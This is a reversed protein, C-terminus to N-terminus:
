SPLSPLVKSDSAVAAQGNGKEKFADGASSSYSACSSPPFFPVPCFVSLCVSLCSTIFFSCSFCIMRAPLPSATPLTSSELDSHSPIARMEGPQVAACNFGSKCTAPPLYFRRNSLRIYQPLTARSTLAVGRTTFVSCLRKVGFVKPMDSIIIRLGKAM